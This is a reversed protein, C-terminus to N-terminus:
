TADSTGNKVLIDDTLTKAEASALDNLTAITFLALFVFASEACDM